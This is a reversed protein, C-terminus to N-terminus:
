TFLVFYDSVNLDWYKKACDWLKVPDKLAEPVPMDSDKASLQVADDPNLKHDNERCENIIKFFEDVKESSNQPVLM